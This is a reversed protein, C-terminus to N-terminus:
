ETQQENEDPDETPEEPEEETPEEPEEETPEEPEEEEEEEPYEHYTIFPSLLYEFGLPVDAQSTTTTIERNKYLHGIMLLIAHQVPKPLEKYDPMEKWHLHQQVIGKAVEFLMFLYDDDDEYDVYLHKKVINLDIEPEPEPEEEGGETSPDIVDGGETSPDIADGGETSPDQPEDLEIDELNEAM